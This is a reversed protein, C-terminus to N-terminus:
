MTKIKLVTGEKSIPKNIQRPKRKKKLGTIVERVQMSVEKVKSAKQLLRIQGEQEQAYGATQMQNYVQKNNLVAYIKIIIDGRVWKM